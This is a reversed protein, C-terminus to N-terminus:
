DVLRVRDGFGDVFIRRGPQAELAGLDRVGDGDAVVGVDQDYIRFDLDLDNGAVEPRMDIGASAVVTGGTRTVSLRYDRAAADFFVPADYLLHTGYNTMGPDNTLAYEAGLDGGGAYVTKGPQGVISGGIRLIGADGIILAAAGVANHSVTCQDLFLQADRNKHFLAETLGNDTFLSTDFAVETVDSDDDEFFLQAASNDQMRVRHGFFNAGKPVYVIAGSLPTGNIDMTTNGSNESCRIVAACRRSQPPEHM